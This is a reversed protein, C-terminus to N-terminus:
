ATSSPRAALIAESRKIRAREGALSGTTAISGGLAGFLVLLSPDFTADLTAVRVAGFVVAMGAGVVAAHRWPLRRIGAAFVTVVGVPVGWIIAELIPTM